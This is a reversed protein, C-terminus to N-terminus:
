VEMEARTMRKKAMDFYEPSLEMGIFRRGTRVAAVGTSGSGMFPDLVVQGPETYTRILYEELDVPKATPHGSVAVPKPFDLLTVACYSDREYPLISTNFGGWNKSLSKESKNIKHVGAKLVPPDFHCQRRYFVAIEEMCRLPQRRANLFGTKMHKYWYWLYKFERRNSAILDTTFPQQCHLVFAADQKAVRHLERWLAELDPVQDWANSTVGFPPDTLVLDVSGDPIDRLLEMCDGQFLM